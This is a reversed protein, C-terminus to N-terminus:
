RCRMIWFGAELGYPACQRGGACDANTCCLQPSPSPTDVAATPACYSVLSSPGVVVARKIEYTCAEGAACDAKRGCARACSGADTCLGSQCAAPDFGSCGAGTEARGRQEGCAWNRPEALGGSSLTCLADGCADDGLCPTVCRGVVCSGSACEPDSSCREGLATMGRAAINNPLCVRVGSLGVVCASGAACDADACCASACRNDTLPTGVSYEGMRVCFGGACQADSTCGSGVPRPEICGGSTADCVQGTRCDDDGACGHSLACDEAEDVKSDCDNDKGDCLEVPAPSFSGDAGRPGAPYIAPDNPACDAFESRGGGCWTFGDDDEDHGNDVVGDCDDDVGNCIESEDQCPKCESAVCHMGAILCPDENERIASVECKIPLSSPDVLVSCAGLYLSLGLMALVARM